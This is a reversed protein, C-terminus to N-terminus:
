ILYGHRVPTLSNKELRPHRQGQQRDCAPCEALATDVRYFVRDTDFIHIRVAHGLIWAQIKSWLYGGIFM